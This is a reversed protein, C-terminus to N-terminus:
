NSSKRSWCGSYRQNDKLWNLMHEFAKLERCKEQSINEPRLFPVEAGLKKAVKAIEIDNTSVIIRNIYKSKKACEITYYILPKGCLLKLNKKPIRKSGGRAPIFSLIKM